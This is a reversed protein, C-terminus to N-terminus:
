WRTKVTCPATLFAQFLKSLVNDSDIEDLDLVLMQFNQQLFLGTLPESVDLSIDPMTCLLNKLRCKEKDAIAINIMGVLLGIHDHTSCQLSLVSVNQLLRWIITTCKASDKLSHDLAFNEACLSSLVPPTLAGIHINVCPPRIQSGETLCSLVEVVDCREAISKLYHPTLELRRVGSYYSGFPAAHQTRTIKIELPISQLQWAEQSYTEHMTGTKLNSFLLDGPISILQHISAEATTTVSGSSDTLLDSAIELLYKHGSTIEEDSSVDATVKEILEKSQKASFRRALSQFSHRDRHVNLPFCTGTEDAASFSTLRDTSRKKSRKMWIDDINVGKAVATGELRCLDLAPVCRLLRHRLWYPLSALLDTSYSGLDNIVVLLCLDQLYFPLSCCPDESSSKLKKARPYCDEM